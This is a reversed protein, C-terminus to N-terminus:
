NSKNEEVDSDNEQAREDTKALDKNQGKQKMANSTKINLVDDEGLEIDPKNKKPSNELSYVDEIEGVTKTLKVGKWLFLDAYYINSKL